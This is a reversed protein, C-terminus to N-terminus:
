TSWRPARRSRTPTASSGSPSRRSRPRRHSQTKQFSVIDRRKNQASERVELPRSQEVFFLLIGIFGLLTLEMFMQSLMAHLAKPTMRYLQDRGFEFGISLVVIIVALVLVVNSEMQADEHPIGRSLQAWEEEANPSSDGWEMKMVRGTTRPPDSAAYIPSTCASTSRSNSRDKKETYHRTTYLLPKRATTHFYGSLAM